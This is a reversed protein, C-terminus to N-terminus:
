ARPCGGILITMSSLLSWSFDTLSRRRFLTSDGGFDVIKPFNNGRFAMALRKGLLPPPGARTAMGIGSRDKAENALSITAASEKKTETAVDHADAQVM